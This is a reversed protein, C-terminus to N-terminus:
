KTNLQLYRVKSSMVIRLQNVTRMKVMVPTMVIVQVRFMRRRERLKASVQVVGRMSSLAISLTMLSTVNWNTYLLLWM